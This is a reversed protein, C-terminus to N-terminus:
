HPAPQTDFERREEPSLSEEWTFSEWNDSMIAPGPLAFLDRITLRKSDVAAFHKRPLLVFNVEMHVGALGSAIIFGLDVLIEMPVDDRTLFQPRSFRVDPDIIPDVMPNKPRVAAMVLLEHECRELEKPQYNVVLRDTEKWVGNITAHLKNKDGVVSGNQDRTMLGDLCSPFEWWDLFASGGAPMGLHHVLFGSGGVIALVLIAAVLPRRKSSFVRVIWSDSTEPIGRHRSWDVLALLAVWVIVVLISFFIAAVLSRMLAGGVALGFVGAGVAKLTFYYGLWDFAEKTWGYVSKAM